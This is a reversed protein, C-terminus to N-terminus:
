ARSMCTTPGAFNMEARHAAFVPCPAAFPWAPSLQQQHQQAASARLFSDLRDRIGTLSSLWVPILASYLHKLASDQLQRQLARLRWRINVGAACLVTHLAGGEAGNLWCRDIRHDHKTHGITPENAQHRKLWRWHSRQVVERIRRSQGDPAIADHVTEEQHAGLRQPQGQFGSHM